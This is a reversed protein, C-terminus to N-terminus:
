AVAAEAGSDTCSAAAKSSYLAAPVVGHFAEALQQDPLTDADVPDPVEEVLLELSLEDLLVLVEALLAESVEDDPEVLVELVELEDPDVLEVLEADFAACFILRGAALACPVLGLEPAFALSAFCAFAPLCAASRPCVLAPLFAAQM